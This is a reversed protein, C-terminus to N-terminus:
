SVTKTTAFTNKRRPPGPAPEPVVPPVDAPAAAPERGAVSEKSADLAEGPAWPRDRWEPGLADLEAETHFLRAPETPHYRWAPVRTSTM